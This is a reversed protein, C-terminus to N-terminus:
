TLGARDAKIGKSRRGETIRGAGGIIGEHKKAKKVAQKDILRPLEYKKERKKQKKSPKKERSALIAKQAPVRCSNGLGGRL